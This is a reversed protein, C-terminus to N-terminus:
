AVQWINLVELGRAHLRAAIEAANEDSEIQLATCAPARVMVLGSTPGLQQTGVLGTVRILYYAPRAPDHDTTV